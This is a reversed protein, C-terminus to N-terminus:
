LVPAPRGRRKGAGRRVAELVQRAFRLRDSGWADARHNTLGSLFQRVLSHQGANVEVGDCGAAAADRAALEFGTVVAEIEHDEMWKPVERSNVEPVRSPAWLPLQSYASSGQGGSHGLAALVLAGEDHCAGAVAAWGPGADAALPSREYPWDTPHVAAEEVVIVGAGGAARRRYYAVHRDSVARRRALNTEHPGFVVRNRAVAPGLPLPDLLAAMPPVCLTTPIGGTPSEVRM